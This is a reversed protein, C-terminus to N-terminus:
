AGQRWLRIVEEVDEIAIKARRQLSKGLSDRALLQQPPEM